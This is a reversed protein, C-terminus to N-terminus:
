YFQLHLHFCLVRLTQEYDEQHLDDVAQVYILSNYPKQPVYQKNTARTSDNAGSSLSSAFSAVILSCLYFQLGVLFFMRNGSCDNLFDM